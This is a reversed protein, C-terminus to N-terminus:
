NKLMKPSGSGGRMLYKVPIARVRLSLETLPVRPTIWPNLPDTVTLFQVFQSLDKEHDACGLLHHRKLSTNVHHLETTGVASCTYWMTVLSKRCIHINSDEEQSVVTIAYFQSLNYKHTLDFIILCSLFIANLSNIRSYHSIWTLLWKVQTAPESVKSIIGYM